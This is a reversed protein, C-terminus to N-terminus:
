RRARIGERLLRLAEAMDEPLPSELRVPEVGQLRPVELLAAHLPTRELVARDGEGGLDAASIPRSRGYQPDVMLPHGVAQLHIRIQHTRGTLPEAEVLTADAFAEVPRVVTLAHKGGEGRAPRMRGRRAPALPVEVRQPEQMAGAVLAQYVKRILGHEFALSLERHASPTRAFLLVGSTDQDLRHVVYVKHRLQTELRERLSPGHGGGRGPIVLTGPAKDVAFFDGGDWLLPVDEGSM